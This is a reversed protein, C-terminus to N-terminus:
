GRDVKSCRCSKCVGQKMTGNFVGAQAKNTPGSRSKITNWTGGARYDFSDHSRYFRPCDNKKVLARQIVHLWSCSGLGKFYEQLPKVLLPVGGSKRAEIEASRKITRRPPM